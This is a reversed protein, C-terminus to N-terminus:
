TVCAGALNSWLAPVAYQRGGLTINTAGGPEGSAIWACKDAIEAGDADLWGSNPYPDTLTEAYEHAAVITVGDLAGEAGNVSRAGCKSDADPIYPLVTYALPGLAVSSISSHWACARDMFREPRVGHASAVIIQANAATERTLGFHRAAKRAEASLQSLTPRAPSPRANDSWVHPPGQPRGVSASGSPCTTAGRAVGACYQGLVDSWSNSSSSLGEYFGLLRDAAGLADNDKWQAGWFVVYIAPQTMVAGRQYQLPLNASPSAAQTGAMPMEHVRPVRSAASAAPVDAILASMSLTVLAVVCMM